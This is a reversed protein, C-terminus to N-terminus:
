LLLVGVAFLYEEKVLALREDCFRLLLLSPRLAAVREDQILVCADEILSPALSVQRATEVPVSASLGM